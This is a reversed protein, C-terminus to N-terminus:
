GEAHRLVAKKDVADRVRAGGEAIGFDFGVKKGVESGSAFGFVWGTALLVRNSTASLPLRPRVYNTFVSHFQFFISTQKTTRSTVGIQYGGPTM